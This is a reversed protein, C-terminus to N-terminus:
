GKQNLERVKIMKDENLKKSKKLNKKIISVKNQNHLLKNEIKEINKLTDDYGPINSNYIIMFDEKLTKVDKLTDDLLDETYGISVIHHNLESDYNIADYRVHKEEELHLKKYANGVMKKTALTQMAIGPLMGGFPSLIVLGIYKLSQGILNGVGKLHRTMYEQREIVSIKKMLEEFYKNQKDIEYELTKNIDLDKIMNLKIDDYKKDRIGYEEIKEENEKQLNETEKKIEELNNYLSKFEELAKYEKVFAKEDNFSDLLYRYNIIDDVIISDDIGIVNDIYYNKKYLNYQDIIENIRDILENIREKVEKVKKLELQNDQYNSLLFLESHLVELEDLKDEFSDKLKNIIDTGMENLLDHKKADDTSNIKDKNDTIFKRSKSRNIKPKNEKIYKVKEDLDNNVKDEKILTIDKDQVRSRVTNSEIKGRVKDGLDNINDKEDNIFITGKDHQELGIVVDRKIEDKVIDEYKDEINLTKSEVKNNVKNETVEEQVFNGKKVNDKVENPVGVKKRNYVREGSTSKINNIVESIFQEQDDKNLDRSYKFKFIRLLKMRKLRQQFKSRFGGNSSGQENM